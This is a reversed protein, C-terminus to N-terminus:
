TSESVTEQDGLKKYGAGSLGGHPGEPPPIVRTTNFEVLIGHIGLSHNLQM